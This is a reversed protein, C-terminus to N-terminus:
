TWNWGYHVHEINHWALSSIRPIRLDRPQPPGREQRRPLAQRRPWHASGRYGGACKMESRWRSWSRSRNEPRIRARAARSGDAPRPGSRLRSYKPGEPSMTEVRAECPETALATATFPPMTVDPRAWVSTTASATAPWPGNRLVPGVLCNRTMALRYPSSRCRTAALFALILLTASRRPLRTESDLSVEPVM